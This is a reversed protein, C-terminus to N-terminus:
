ASTCTPWFSSPMSWYHYIKTFITVVFPFINLPFRCIVFAVSVIIMTRTINWKVRNSETQAANTQASAQANHAALVRAQRRVVVVIRGYCYVFLITPVVSFSIFTWFAYTVRAEPSKWPIKLCVGDQVISTVFAVTVNRLIGGVWAFVITAYIMWRKLYKKSWFPHVVKLYREVTTAMLNIISAYGIRSM